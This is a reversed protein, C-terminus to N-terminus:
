TTESEPDRPSSTRAEASVRLTDMAKKVNRELTENTKAKEIPATLRTKASGNLTVKVLPKKGAGLGGVVSAPIEMGAATKGGSKITAGFRM